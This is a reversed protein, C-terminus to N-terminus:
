WEFTREEKDEEKRGFVSKEKRLGLQRAFRELTEDCRCVLRQLARRLHLFVKGRVDFSDPVPRLVPLTTCRAEKGGATESSDGAERDRTLRREPRRRKKKKKEEGGVSAGRAIRNRLRRERVEEKLM